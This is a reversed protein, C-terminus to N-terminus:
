RAVEYRTESVTESEPVPDYGGEHWPHCRGLRKVGLVVGRLVGFRGIAEYAYRSCTPEFRCNKGLWPSVLRQYGCISLRAIRAPLGIRDRTMVM